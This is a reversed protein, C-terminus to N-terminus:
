TNAPSTQQQTDAGTCEELHQSGLSEGLSTQVQGATQPEPTGLSAQSLAAQITCVSRDSEATRKSHLGVTDCWHSISPSCTKTATCTCNPTCCQLALNCRAHLLVSPNLHMCMLTKGEKALRFLSFLRFINMVYKGESHM